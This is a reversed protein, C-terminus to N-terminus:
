VSNKIVVTLQTPSWGKATAFGILIAILAIAFVTVGIVVTRAERERLDVLTIEKVKPPPDRRIRSVRPGTAALDVPKKGPALPAAM